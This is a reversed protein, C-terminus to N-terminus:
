IEKAKVTFYDSHLRCVPLYNEPLPKVKKEM